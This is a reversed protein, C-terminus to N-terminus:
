RKSRSQGPRQEFQQVLTRIGGPQGLSQNVQGLLREIYHLKFPEDRPLQAREALLYARVRELRTRESPPEAAKFVKLERVCLSMLTYFGWRAGMQEYREPFQLEAVPVTYSYVERIPTAEADFPIARSTVASVV